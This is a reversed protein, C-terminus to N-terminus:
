EDYWSARGTEADLEIGNKKRDVTKDEEQQSKTGDVRCAWKTRLSSGDNFKYDSSEGPHLIKTKCVKQIFGGSCSDTTKGCGNATWVVKVKENSNNNARWPKSDAQAALPTVLMTTLAISLAAVSKM